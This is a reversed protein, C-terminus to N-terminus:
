VSIEDSEWKPRVGPGADNGGSEGEPAADAGAAPRPSPTPSPCPTVVPREAKLCLVRGAGFGRTLVRLEKEEEEEDKEDDEEEKGEEEKRGEGKVRAARGGGGGGGRKEVPVLVVALTEVLTAHLIIMPHPGPGSVVSSSPPPPPPSPPPLPPPTSSSSNTSQSLPPPQQQRQQHQQQQQQHQQLHHHGCGESPASFTVEEDSYLGYSTHSTVIIKLIPLSSSPFPSSSSSSFSSVFSSSCSSSTSPTPRHLQRQQHELNCSDKEGKGGIGGVVDIVIAPGGRGGGGGGGKAGMPAVVVGDGGFLDRVIFFVDGGFVTRSASFLARQVTGEVGRVMDGTRTRVIESLREKVDVGKLVDKGGEMGVGEERELDKLVQALSPALRHCERFSSFFSSSSPPLSPPIRPLRRPPSCPPMPLCGVPTPPLSLRSLPLAHVNFVRMFDAPSEYEQHHLHLRLSPPLALLLENLSSGHRCTLVAKDTRLWQLIDEIHPTAAEALRSYPPPPLSPPLAPSGPCGDPVVATTATSTTTTTTTRTFTADTESEKTEGEREKKNRMMEDWIAGAARWLAPTAMQQQQQELRGVELELRTTVEEGLVKTMLVDCCLGELLPM